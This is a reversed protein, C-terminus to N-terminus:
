PFEGRDAVTVFFLPPRLVHDPQQALQVVGDAGGARETDKRDLLTWRRGGRHRRGCRRRTEYTPTTTRRSSDTPPPLSRPHPVGRELESRFGRGGLFQVQTPM